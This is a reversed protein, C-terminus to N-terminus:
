INFGLKIDEAGGFNRDTKEDIGGGSPLRM